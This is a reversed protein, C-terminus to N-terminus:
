NLKHLSLDDAEQLYNEQTQLWLYVEFVYILEARTQDFCEASTCNICCYKWSIIFLTHVCQDIFVMQIILLTM